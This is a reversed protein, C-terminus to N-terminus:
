RAPLSKNRQGRDRRAAASNNQSWRVDPSMLVQTRSAALFREVGEDRRCEEERQQARLRSAEERLMAEDRARNAQENQLDCMRLAQLMQDTPEVFNGDPDRLPVILLMEQRSPDRLRVLHYFGAIVGPISVGEYAQMLRLNRDIDKLATNWYDLIGGSQHMHSLVLSEWEATAEIHERSVKPTPAPLNASPPTWLM